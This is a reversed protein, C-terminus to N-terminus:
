QLSYVYSSWQLVWKRSLIYIICGILAVSLIFFMGALVSTAIIATNDQTPDVAAALSACHPAYLDPITLGCPGPDVFYRKGILSIARNEDEGLLYNTLSSKLATLNFMSIDATSLRARYIVYGSACTFYGDEVLFDYPLACQCSKFMIRLVENGISYSTVQM